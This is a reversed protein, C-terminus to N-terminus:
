IIGNEKFEDALEPFRDALAEFYAGWAAMEGWSLSEDNMWHQWDIAVDRAESASSCQRPLFEAM